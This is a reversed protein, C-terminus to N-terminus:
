SDERHYIHVGPTPARGDISSRLLGLRLVPDGAPQKRRAVKLAEARGQLAGVLLWTWPTITANILLDVVNIAILLALSTLLIRDPSSDAFRLASVAYFIPSTLLGFLSIFGFLGYQGLIVIWYGDTLSIDKGYDDYLRSRGYRGWGFVLRQSAHELLQQDQDFRVNLSYARDESLSRAIDVLANTPVLNTIRLAPYALAITVLVLAIRLQLQPKAWRVLPVLVVGYLLAAASKCLVLLTSLYSTVGGAPFRLVRGQLRWLIASAVVTTMTFYALGLGHGMFVVPRYGGDRIEQLFSSPDYGYVWDHLQPSMRIEFLMPLSYALGAVALAHFIEANDAPSRLLQRGLFFPLLFFFQGVVASLADYNGVSPLFVSGIKIVDGNLQSTIFPGVMLMVLFLEALGFGAWFRIRRGAILVCGILAALSPISTKDLQPIGPALKIFAGVPLLLQAGLITWLTAQGVPRTRYLWLGVLPWLLLAVTAFWNQQIM